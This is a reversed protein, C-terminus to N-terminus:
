VVHDPRARPTWSVVGPCRVVPSTNGRGCRTTPPVLGRAQAVRVAMLRDSVELKRYVNQLHKHVTRPSTALRRAMAVSTHGDSLLRLVATERGTLGAARAAVLGDSWGSLVGVQRHVLRLLPQLLRATELDEDSFDRGGRALVFTRHRGGSVVYPISLQQDLGVGRLCEHVLQHDRRAAIGFPVRAMSQARTSGTKAYWQLLPHRPMGEEAWYEVEDERPWEAPPHLMEFGWSGDPDAWNWSPEADFAEGFQQVLVGHPYADLTQRMLDGVLELWPDLRGSAVVAM